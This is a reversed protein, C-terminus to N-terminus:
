LEGMSFIQFYVPGNLFSKIRLGFDQGYPKSLIYSHMDTFRTSYSM